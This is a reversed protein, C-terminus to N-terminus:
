DDSLVFYLVFPTLILAAGLVLGAALAQQIAVESLAGAIWIFSQGISAWSRTVLAAFVGAVCAAALGQLMMIPRAAAREAEARTRMTARWWVQGPTPLHAEHWAAEGEDHLTSAVMALDGCVPCLDAHTRLDEPWRSSAVADLVELERLCEIM